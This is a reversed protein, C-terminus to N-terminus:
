IPPTFPLPVTTGMRRTSVTILSGYSNLTRRRPPRRPGSEIWHLAADIGDPSSCGGATVSPSRCARHRERPAHAGHQEGVDGAEAGEHPLVVLTGGTRHLAQLREDPADHGLHVAVGLRDRAVREERGEIAHHRRDVGGQLYLPPDGGLLEGAPPELHPDA